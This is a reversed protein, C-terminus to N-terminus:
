PPAGEPPEVVTAVFNEWKTMMAREGARRRRHIEDQATPHGDRSHRRYKFDVPRERAGGEGITEVTYTAM